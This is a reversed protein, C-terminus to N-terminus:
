GFRLYTHRFDLPNTARAVLFREKQLTNSLHLAIRSPILLRMREVSSVGRVFTGIIVVDHARTAENAGTRLHM